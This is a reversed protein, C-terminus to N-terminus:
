RLFKPSFPRGRSLPDKRVGALMGHNTRDAPRTPRRASAAAPGFAGPRTVDVPQRARVRQLHRQIAQDVVQDPGAVPPEVDYVGGKGRETVLFARM